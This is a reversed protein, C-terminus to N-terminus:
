RSSEVKRRKWEVACAKLAPGAQGFSHIGKGKLCDSLFNQYPSKARTGKGCLQIGVGRPCDALKEVSELVAPDKVGSRIATKVEPSLCPVCKTRAM